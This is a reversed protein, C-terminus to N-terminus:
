RQLEVTANSLLTETANLADLWDDSVEAVLSEDLGKPWLTERYQYEDEHIRAIKRRLSECAKAALAIQSRRRRNM